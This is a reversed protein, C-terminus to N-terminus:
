DLGVGDYPPYVLISAEPPSFDNYINDQQQLNTTFLTGSSCSSCIQQVFVFFLRCFRRLRFPLLAFIFVVFLHTLVSAFHRPRQSRDELHVQLLLSSSSAELTQDIVVFFIESRFIRPFFVSAVLVGSVIL